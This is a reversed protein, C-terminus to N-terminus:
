ESSRKKTSDPDRAHFYALDPGSRQKALELLRVMPCLTNGEASGDNQDLDLSILANGADCLRDCARRDFRDQGNDLIRDRVESAPRNVVAVTQDGVIVAGAEIRAAGAARNAIERLGHRSDLERQPIRDALRGVLRQMSNEATSGTVLDLIEPKNLAVLGMLKCVMRLRQDLLTERNEIQLDTPPFGEVQFNHARYPFGDPGHPQAEIGILHPIHHGGAAHKFLQSLEIRLEDFLGQRSGSARLCQRSQPGHDVNRDRRVLADKRGLVNVAHPLRAASTM